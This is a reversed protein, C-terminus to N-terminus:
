FFCAPIKLVVDSFQTFSLVMKLNLALFICGSKCQWARQVVSTKKHVVFRIYLSISLVTEFLLRLQIVITSQVGDTKISVAYVLRKIYLDYIAGM